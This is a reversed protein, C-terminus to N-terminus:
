SAERRFLKTIVGNGHTEWARNRPGALRSFAIETRLAKLQMSTHANNLAVRPPKSKGRESNRDHHRPDPTRPRCPEGRCIRNPFPQKGRLYRQYTLVDDHRTKPPYASIASAIQEIMRQAVAAGSKIHSLNIILLSHIDWMRSFKLTKADQKLRCVDLRTINQYPRYGLHAVKKKFPSM